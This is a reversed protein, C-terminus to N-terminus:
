MIQQSSIYRFLVTLRAVRSVVSEALRQFVEFIASNSRPSKRTAAAQFMKGPKKSELAQVLM